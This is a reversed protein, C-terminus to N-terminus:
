HRVLYTNSSFFDFHQNRRNTGAHVGLASAPSSVRGASFNLSPIQSDCMQGTQMKGSCSGAGFCQTSPCLTVMVVAHSDWGWEVDGVAGYM